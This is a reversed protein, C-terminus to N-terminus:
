HPAMALTHKSIDRHFIIEAMKKFYVLSATSILFFSNTDLKKAYSKLLDLFPFSQFFTAIRKCEIDIFFLQM